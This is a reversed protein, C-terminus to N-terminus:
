QAALLDLATRWRVTAATALALVEATDALRIEDSGEEVGAM